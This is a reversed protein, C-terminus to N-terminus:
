RGPRNTAPAARGVGAAAGVEPWPRMPRRDLSSACSSARGPPQRAADIVGLRHQPPEVLQDAPWSGSSRWGAPPARRAPTPRGSRAAMQRRAAPCGRRRRAPRARVSTPRDARRGQQLLQVLALLRELLGRRRRDLPGRDLDDRQQELADQGFLADRRRHPDPERPQLHRHQPPPSRASKKAVTSWGARRRISRM